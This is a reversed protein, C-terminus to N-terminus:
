KECKLIVVNGNIITGSKIKSARSRVANETPFTGDKVLQEATGFYRVFDDKDYFVYFNEVAIHNERYKEVRRKNYGEKAHEKCYKSRCPAGCILCQNKM